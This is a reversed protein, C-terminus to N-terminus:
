EVYMLTSIIDDSVFVGQPTLKLRDGAIELRDSHLFPEAMRLCYRHLKTGFEQELRSLSLGRSTRLATMVRENYRTNLDLTETEFPREDRELGQLYLSLSATNWERHTRNYSHASPGCGLYPIGEWYSSNHRSQRGPLCFNSIEYHLYGAQALTDTLMTYFNLSREEDVEGVQHQRRMRDLPTGEEISLHYASLHEPQLAVAQQLDYAWQAETEDPLGYMLDISLNLFGYRRCREVAEIAQRATHRRNLLTLMRDDFSQIGMSLRNVPLQRLASVYTETLDDPNAELTVEETQSLDFCRQLTGFIRELERPALQSPTGGGLYITRVTEDELYGKRLELERCLAAVYREKWESHTTSYFDCYICRKQCFPIHLYIGAM